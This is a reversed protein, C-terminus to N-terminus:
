EDEKAGTSKMSEEDFKMERIEKETARIEAEEQFKRYEETKEYEPIIMYYPTLGNDSTMKVRTIKGKISLWKVDDASYGEDMLQSTVVQTPLAGPFDEDDTQRLIRLLSLNLPPLEHLEKREDESLRKLFWCPRGTNLGSDKPPYEVVLDVVFDDLLSSIATGIEESEYKTSLKQEVTRRPLQKKEEEDLLRLVNEKMKVMLGKM